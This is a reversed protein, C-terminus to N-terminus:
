SLGPVDLGHTRQDLGPQMQYRDEPLSQRLHGEAQGAGVPDVVRVEVELEVDPLQRNRPRPGERQEPLLDGPEMSTREVSMTRQPLEVHDGAQLIAPGRDVRLDMM